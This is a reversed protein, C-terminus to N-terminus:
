ATRTLFPKAVLSAGIVLLFIAILPPDSRWLQSVAAVFAAVGIATSFGNVAIHKVYRVVNIGILIVAVGLLWTGSPVVETPLLWVAGTLMLLLGWGIDNLWRDLPANAPTLTTQM